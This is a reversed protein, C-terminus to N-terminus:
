QMFQKFFAQADSSANKFASSKAEQAAWKQFDGISGQSGADMLYNHLDGLLADGGKPLGPGYVEAQFKFLLNDIQTVPPPTLGFLKMFDQVPEASGVGSNAYVDLNGEGNFFNSQLAKVFDQQSPYPGSGNKVRELYQQVQTFLTSQGSAANNDIWQQVQDGLQTLWTPPNSQSFNSSYSPPQVSSPM